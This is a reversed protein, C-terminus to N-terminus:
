WLDKLLQTFVSVSYSGDNLYSKARLLAPPPSLSHSVSAVYKSTHTRGFKTLKWLPAGFIELVCLPYPLHFQIDM